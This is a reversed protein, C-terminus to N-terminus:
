QIAKQIRAVVREKGLLRLMEGMDPSEMTGAIAARVPPMVKGLKLGAEEAYAKFLDHTSEHSFDELAQLRPLLAQLVEQGSTINNQAKENVAYDESWFFGTKEWFESFVEIRPLMLKVVGKFFDDNPVDHGHEQLHSHLRETVTEFPLVERIYQANLWKLKDWGFVSGGLSIRDFSFAGTLDQLNFIERGDPMSFGMMGLYNLLAEPQIGEKRYWEVSTNGKRKSLKTKDPNQLLPMHIWRPEQWGFAQYLVVHIPASPIWEEGRIVDTVGMLHDDVVVALHYTPFGDGKILVADEVGANDFSIAGRLEDRLLTSGERPAKLRIVHREGAAVRQRAEELTISRARGDYGLNINRARLGERIGQLEEPTEFAYYAQGAELLQQAYKHYHELRESQRYPANPGGVDPAEDYPIGLWRFMELIRKESEANYRSRDTDEIRVIFKGGNKKAWIYDFLAQYATGVHPDGTPSPAIRTVVM